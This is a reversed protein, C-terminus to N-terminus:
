NRGAFWRLGIPAVNILAVLESARILSLPIELAVFGAGVFVAGYNLVGAVHGTADAWGRSSTPAEGSSRRGGWVRALALLSLAAAIPLAVSLVGAWALATLGTLVFVADCVVDLVAGRDSGQGLRRALRGDLFDTAAALGSVVFAGTPAWFLLVAFLPGLVLRSGTLLDPLVSRSDFGDGPCRPAGPASVGRAM